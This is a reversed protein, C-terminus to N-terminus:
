SLRESKRREPKRPPEGTCKVSQVAPEAAPAASDSIIGAAGDGANKPAAQTKPAAQVSAIQSVIRSQADAAESWGFGLVIPPAKIDYAVTFVCKETMSPPQTSQTTAAEALLMLILM